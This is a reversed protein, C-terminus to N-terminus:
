AFQIQNANIISTRCAFADITVSFDNNCVVFGETLQRFRNHDPFAARIRHFRKRSMQASSGGLTPQGTTETLLVVRLLCDILCAPRGKKRRRFRGGAVLDSFAFRENASRSM